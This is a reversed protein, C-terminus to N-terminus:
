VFFSFNMPDFVKTPCTKFRILAQSCQEIHNYCSINTNQKVVKARNNQVHVKYTHLMSKVFSSGQIAKGPEKVGTDQVNYLEHYTKLVNLFRSCTPFVTQTTHFM